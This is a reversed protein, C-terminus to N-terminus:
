DEEDGTRSYMDLRRRRWVAGCLGRRRPPADHLTSRVFDLFIRGAPGPNNAEADELREVLPRGPKARYIALFARKIDARDAAGYRGCRRIGVVNLGVVSNTNMLIVFPPVHMSNAAHARFLALEGIRTFQHSGTLGSYVAGRGVIVHGALSANNVMIVDDGVVCNHGVHADAMFFCNNGIVTPQADGTSRSITVHERFINGDGVVLSGPVDPKYARDQPDGGLVAYAHLDNREGMRTHALVAAGRRLRTHAGILCHPGVYAGAELVVGEGLEATHHAEATPHIVVNTEATPM